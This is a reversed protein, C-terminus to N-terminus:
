VVLLLTSITFVMIRHGQRIQPLVFSWDRNTDDAQPRLERALNSTSELPLMNIGVDFLTSSSYKDFSTERSGGMMWRFRLPELGVLARQRNPHAHTNTHM